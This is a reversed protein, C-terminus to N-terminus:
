STKWYIKVQMGLVKELMCIRHYLIQKEADERQGHAILHEFGCSCTVLLDTHGPTGCKSKPRTIEVHHRLM